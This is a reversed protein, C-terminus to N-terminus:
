IRGIVVISSRSDNIFYVIKNKVFSENKYTFIASIQSEPIKWKYINCFTFIPYVIMGM